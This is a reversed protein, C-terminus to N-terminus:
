NVHCTPRIEISAFIGPRWVLKVMNRPYLGTLFSARSQSCCAQPVYSRKFQLGQSALRDLKQTRAYRDGYCGLEPGNDESVILLINPVKASQLFLAMHFLGLFFLYTRASISIPFRVM